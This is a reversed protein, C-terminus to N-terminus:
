RFTNLAASSARTPSLLMETETPPATASSSALQLSILVSYRQDLRVISAFRPGTGSRGEDRGHDPGQYPVRAVFVEYGTTELRYFAVWTGSPSFKPM